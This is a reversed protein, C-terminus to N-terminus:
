SVIINAHALDAPSRTLLGDNEAARETAETFQQKLYKEYIAVAAEEGCLLHL